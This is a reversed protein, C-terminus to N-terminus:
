GSEKGASNNDGTIMYTEYGNRQLYQITEYSNLKLKVNIEIVSSTRMLLFM